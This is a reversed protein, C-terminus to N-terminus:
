DNRGQDTLVCVHLGCPCRPQQAEILGQPNFFGDWCTRWQIDLMVPRLDLFCVPSHVSALGTGDDFVAAVVHRNLCGRVAHDEIYPRPARLSLSNPPLSLSEAVDRRFAARRDPRIVYRFADGPYIIWAAEGAHGPLSIVGGWGTASQLMEQLGAVVHVPGQHPSILILDGHHLNVHVDDPVPWPQDGM